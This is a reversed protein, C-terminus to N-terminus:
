GPEEDLFSSLEPMATDLDRVSGLDKVEWPRLSLQLKDPNAKLRELIKEVWDMWTPPQSDFYMPDRIWNDIKSDLFAVLKDREQKTLDYKM